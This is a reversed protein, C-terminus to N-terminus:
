PPADNTLAYNWPNRPSIEYHHRMQDHRLEMVTTLPLEHHHRM